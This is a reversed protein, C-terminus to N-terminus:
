PFQGEKLYRGEGKFTNSVAKKMRKKKVEKLFGTIEEERGGKRKREQRRQRGLSKSIPGRGASVLSISQM